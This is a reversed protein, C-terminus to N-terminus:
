LAFGAITKYNLPQLQFFNNRASKQFGKTGM